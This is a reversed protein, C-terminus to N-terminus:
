RLVGTVRATPTLRALTVREGVALGSSRPIRTIGRLIQRSASEHVIRLVMEGSSFKSLTVSYMYCKIYTSWHFRMFIYVYMPRSIRRFINRIRFPRYLYSACAVASEQWFILIKKTQAFKWFYMSKSIDCKKVHWINRWTNM